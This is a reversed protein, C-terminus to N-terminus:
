RLGTIIIRPDRQKPAALFKTYQPDQLKKELIVSMERSFIGVGAERAWRIMEVMPVEAVHRMDRKSTSADFRYNRAAHTFDLIPECDQKEEVHLTGDTEFHLTTNTVGGLFESHAM